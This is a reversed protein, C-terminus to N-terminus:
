HQENPKPKIHVELKSYEMDKYKKFIHLNVEARFIEQKWQEIGGEFKSPDDDFTHLYPLCNTLAKIQDDLYYLWKHDFKNQASQNSGM